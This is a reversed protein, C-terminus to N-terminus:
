QDDLNLDPGPKAYFDKRAKDCREQQSILGHNMKPDKIRGNGCWSCQYEKAMPQNMRKVEELCANWGRPYSLEPNIREDVVDHSSV